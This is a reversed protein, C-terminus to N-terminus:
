RRRGGILGVSCVLLVLGWPVIVWIPWFNDFGSTVGSIFWIGTTILAVAAWPRWMSWRGWGHGWGHRRGPHRGPRRSTADDETTALQSRAPPAPAPLDATIAALEGYTKAAYAAGLREDYEDIGIRGEDVAQKLTDAVKQRDADGARLESQEM